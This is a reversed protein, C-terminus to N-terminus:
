RVKVVKQTVVGDIEIFYIGPQIKDPTVVRGTIDFVKCNKGEPLLLSGSFITAGFNSSKVSEVKDEEIGSEPAIKLLWVDLGGAGFSGTGGVVIYGSDSTQQVSWGM